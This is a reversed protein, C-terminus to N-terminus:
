HGLVALSYGNAAFDNILTVQPINFHQQLHRADLTWPLNTLTALYHNRVPGAVAFCAADIGTNVRITECCAETVFQDLVTTFDNYERAPYYAECRIAVSDADVEALILRCNTGGIDGAIVQKM